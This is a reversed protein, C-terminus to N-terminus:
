HSRLAAFDHTRMEDLRQADVAHRKRRRPARLADFYEVDARCRAAIDVPVDINEELREFEGVAFLQRQDGGGRPEGNVRRDPMFRRDPEFVRDGINKKRRVHEEFRKPAAAVDIELFSRLHAGLSSREHGDDITGREDSSWGRKRNEGCSGRRSKRRDRQHRRRVRVDISRM